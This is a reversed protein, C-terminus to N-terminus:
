WDEEGSDEGSGDESDSGGWGQAEVAQRLDMADQLSLSARMHEWLWNFLDWNRGKLAAHLLTRQARDRAHVPEIQTLFVWRFATINGNEAATFLTGAFSAGSAALLAIVELDGGAVAFAAVSMRASDLARLNASQSLLYRLCRVARYFAAISILPPWQRLLPERALHLPGVKHDITFCSSTCARLADVDDKRLARVLHAELVTGRVAGSGADWM